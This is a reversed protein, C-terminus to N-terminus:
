PFRRSDISRSVYRNRDENARQDRDSHETSRGPTSSRASVGRDQVYSRRAQEFARNPAADYRM